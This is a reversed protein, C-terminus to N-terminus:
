SCIVNCLDELRAQSINTFPWVKFNGNDSCTLTLQQSSIMTECSMAKNSCSWWKLPVCDIYQCWSCYRNLNIGQLAAVAAGAFLLTFIVLSVSRLVPKDLKQKLKVSHKINFDFLGTKAQYGQGVHPRFLIIFGALFGSIFGGINSFNSVYPMLGLIGNVMSIILLAMLTAFKKSYIKWNWILGSLTAGLLGFLAGSCAVSPRDQLFLTAVLSGCLASLIYIVGVRLPGFEQEMHVGVFVVSALNVIFHFVGAHLCPSTFLRWFQHDKVLYRLRLAGVADLASASPGLLPNESLPQFSFRGLQKLACQAHSNEWCDNVIMTAAFAILHLIFFVSILWTNEKRQSLPRFFPFPIRQEKLLEEATLEASMRPQPTQIPRIEIQTQLKPTEEM